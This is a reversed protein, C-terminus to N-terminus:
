RVTLKREKLRKNVAKGLLTYVVSFLPIFILMGAVGMMNGGVTVAVLVWISPLGVSNGVVKPYILNGEVQQLVLFLVLFWLAQVPNVVVILFMGVVCGIFAGFIPILAMFGILISVIMAYPFRFISMAIFFMSGLIVAELCQGSLFNSFTKNSLKSVEVIWEAKKKPLYSYLLKKCQLSLKEKELLVYISFVIAFFMNIVGSVVSTTVNITSNLMSGAGEGVWTSFKAGVTAWNIELTDIWAIWDPTMHFLEELQDELGKFFNQINVALGGFTSAIEPVVTLFVIAIVSVVLIYTLVISLPRSAKKGAKNVWKEIRKMPTNLVFAICAGLIFPFVLGIINGIIGGVVSYNNLGWLLVIAFAVIGLIKQITQKNLEM